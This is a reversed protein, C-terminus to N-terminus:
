SGLEAKIKKKLELIKEPPLGKSKEVILDSIEGLTRTREAAEDDITIELKEEFAIVLDVLRASNVQLDEM